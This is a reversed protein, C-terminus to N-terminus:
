LLMGEDIGNKANDEKYVDEDASESVKRRKTPRSPRNKSRPKFVDDDMSEAGESDSEAYSLM